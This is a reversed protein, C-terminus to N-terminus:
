GYGAVMRGMYFPDPPICIECLSDYNGCQILSMNARCMVGHGPSLSILYCIFFGYYTQFFVMSVLPPFRTQKNTKSSSCPWGDTKENQVPHWLNYLWSPPLFYNLKLECLCFCFLFPLFRALKSAGPELWEQLGPM